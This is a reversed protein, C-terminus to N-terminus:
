STSRARRLGAIRGPADKRLFQEVEFTAESVAAIDIGTKIGVSDLLWATDETAINGTAGPIFPCGGLGGLSTDFRDIGEDLAPWANVLGFGRTDHLHLAIPINAPADQVARLTNRTWHHTPM